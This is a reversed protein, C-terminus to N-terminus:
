NDGTRRKPSHKKMDSYEFGTHKLIDKCVGSFNSNISKNSYRLVKIGLSALYNDREIDDAKNDPMLHQRGDIEIAIKSSSIFFDVIYNGINKQRNVTVPFRKLFQYWLKKEEPTMNKRLVQAIGVFRKNYEYSM